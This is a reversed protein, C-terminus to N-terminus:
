FWGFFTGEFSLVGWKPPDNSALECESGTHIPGFVVEDNAVLMTNAIPINQRPKLRATM